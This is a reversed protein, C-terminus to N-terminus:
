GRGVGVVAKESRYPVVHMITVMATTGYLSRRTQRTIGDEGCICACRFLIIHCGKIEM